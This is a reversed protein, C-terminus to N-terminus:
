CQFHLQTFVNTSRADQLILSMTIGPQAFQFFQPPHDAFSIGVTIKFNPLQRKLFILPIVMCKAMILHFFNDCAGLFGFSLYFFIVSILTSIILFLKLFVPSLPSVERYLYIHCTRPSPLHCLQLVQSEFCNLNIFTFSKFHNTFPLRSCLSVQSIERCRSVHNYSIFLLRM